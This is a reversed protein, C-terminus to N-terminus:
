VRRRVNPRGRATRGRDASRVAARVPQAGGWRGCRRHGAESERAPAILRDGPRCSFMLQLIKARCHGCDLACAGGTISFAPFRGRRCGELEDTAYARFSPTAAELPLGIRARGARWLRPVREHDVDLDEFAEIARLAALVDALGPTVPRSAAAAFAVNV